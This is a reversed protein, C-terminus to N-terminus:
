VVVVAAASSEGDAAASKKGKSALAGMKSTTKDDGDDKSDTEVAENSECAVNDRRESSAACGSHRRARLKAEAEADDAVDVDDENGNDAM